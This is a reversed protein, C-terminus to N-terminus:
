DGAAGELMAEIQRCAQDTGGQRTALFQQARRKVDSRAHPARLDQQMLEVVGQWNRAVRLLENEIIEEGVWAFNSWSPGIVPIVGCVLAELFNQGGLPALSGGVFASRALQYAPMMEGFVDWLIVTGAPMPGSMASRLTWSLGQRSFLEQWFFLRHLHRPFLGLVPQSPDRALAHAIRAVDPEEERRVSALVVFPHDPPLFSQFQIEMENPKGSAALRDFKINAMVDIQQRGFLHGFRDADSSSIAMVVDPRLARWISPWVRYRRLSAPTIRGNVIMTRCRRAKLARLLGPWIETELLVMLKPRTREVAAAMISPKDFPFYRVAARIHPPDRNIETLGQELLDIGQRTNATLLVRTSPRVDLKKLIELALFSEGVSAAQIWLDARDSPRDTLVRQDYGEALRQNLRLWPLALRWCFDYLTFATKHLLKHPM